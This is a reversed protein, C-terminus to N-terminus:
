ATAGLKNTIVLEFKSAHHTNKMPVRSVAFGHQDAMRRVEDSEDYTLLVPGSCLSLEHFLKEHDLQHHVYLRRGAGAKTATYPPDIFWCATSRNRYKRIIEFADCHLFLVKDKLSNIYLLRKALTEPYWRSFPGKGAEGSRLMRSGPALIGGHLLRNRVITQFARDLRTEPSSQILARATDVDRPFHLIRQVLLHVDDSLAALWVSAVDEDIEAMIVQEALGESAVTLSCAAGGAFPEIFHRPKRQFNRIWSRLRPVFWTKGGAYRFPSLQPVSAVNVPVEHRDYGELFNLQTM